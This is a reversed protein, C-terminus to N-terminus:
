PRARHNRDCARMCRSAPPQATAELAASKSVYPGATSGDHEVGWGNEFPVIKYVASGM